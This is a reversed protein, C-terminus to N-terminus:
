KGSIKKWNIRCDYWGNKKKYPKICDRGYKAMLNKVAQKMLKQRNGITQCGGGEKGMPPTNFAFKTFRVTRYGSLIAQICFDRDEMMQDSYNILETRKTNILTVACIQTNFISKGKHSWAFQRFDMGAVAINKMKQTEALAQGLVSIANEQVLKQGNWIYFGTIDDDIMWFWEHSKSRCYELIQQRSYAIGRNSEELVLVNNIGAEAYIKVDQKEIVVTPELGANRLLWFTKCGPRAKSPVFIKM